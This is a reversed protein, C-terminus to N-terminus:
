TPAGYRDHVDRARTVDGAAAEALVNELEIRGTMRDADPADFRIWGFNLGELM